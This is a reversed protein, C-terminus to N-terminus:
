CQRARRAPPARERAPLETAPAAPAHLELAVRCLDGTSRAPPARETARGCQLDGVAVLGGPALAHAGPRQLLAARPVDAADTKAICTDADGHSRAPAV